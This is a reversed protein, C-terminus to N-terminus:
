LRKGKRNKRLEATGLLLRTVSGGVISVLLSFLILGMFRTIIVVGEGFITEPMAQPVGGLLVKSSWIMSLPINAYVARDGEAFWILTGSILIMTFLTVIYIQMTVGFLQDHGNKEIDEHKKQIRLLKVLRVMRLFRLLRLLRVSKLFTFNAIGLFTPIIAVLDILGFFSCIYSWSRKAAIVRGIYELSFFFVTFYEIYLFIKEYKTFGEVTELVIAVISIITLVAFFDNVPVFYRSNINNFIDRCLEQFTQKKKM